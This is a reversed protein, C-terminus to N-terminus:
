SRSKMRHVFIDETNAGTINAAGGHGHDRGLTRVAQDGDDVDIGVADGGPVAVPQRDVLRAQQLHDLRAAAAVQVERGIDLAADPFAIDNEDGDVGRRLGESLPGPAGGVQLVPFLGRALDPAAGRAVLDDDLLARQRDAGRRRHRADETRAVAARMELHEGIGLEQGLARGDGIEAAGVPHQDAAVVRRGSAGGDRFQDREVGGPHRALADQGRVDPGALEGLEGGVGKQRLPDARDVGDALDALRGLGVDGLDRARDAHVRADAGFEELRAHPEAARAELLVDEVQDIEALAVPQLGRGVVPALHDVEVVM